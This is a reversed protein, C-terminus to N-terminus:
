VSSAKWLASVVVEFNKDRILDYIVNMFDVVFDESTDITM